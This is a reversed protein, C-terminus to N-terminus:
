EIILSDDEQLLFGDGGSLEYGETYLYYITLIEIYRVEILLSYYTPGVSNTVKFLANYSTSAFPPTGTFLGNQSLSVWSPLSVPEFVVPGNSAICQFNLADLYEINTINLTTRLSQTIVPPNLPTTDPIPAYVTLTDITKVSLDKIKFEIVVNKDNNDKGLLTLLYEKKLTNHSLTPFDISVINLSSLSQISIIDEQEVPFIKRLNQTNLDLQYLEPTLLYNQIGCVSQVVLKEQPFFWTEGAKAFTYTSLDTNAFEKDLNSSVPIALSLYRAEDAVSFIYDDNYDYNIKEFIVAGSTEILLTDFFIDIKRVGIGTLENILNTGTYTDFIGILDESAPSVFQSNKRVWIEGTINKRDYIPVGTLSKYLGYQNGFIDTGWNDIQLGNQKLVQSNAWSNVDLEGAFSTPKNQLDGWESDEYGTWPSQRSTPTILGVRLRPNTEFGSQYPLFKQYKRFISKKITGAIPGSLTPEKLWINNETLTYPSPQEQRTLGRGDVRKSVDEFYQGLAKSSVDLTTTYDQDIYVSTGINGPVFFGGIDATSYLEDFSPFMAVTPYFQNPLNAWPQIAEIALTATVNSYVTESIEPTATINWTFSDIANYYVEVPENDVFSQFLLNSTATTPTVVLDTKFNLLQDQLNSTSTTDVELTCWTNNDVTYTLDIPQSWTLNVPNNRYYEIHNGTELVIESIEPQSLINHEDVFRLPTGWSEVGKYDTYQNKQLYTKAWYPQAGGNQITAYPNLKGLNYDWGKLPTNLVYGPVPTNYATLSPVLATNPIATLAPINTFIFHGTNTYFFTGNSAFTATPPLSAASMATVAFTYLGSLTPNIIVSPVNRFFQLPQGPASVSWQIVSVLNNINLAPYQPYAPNAINLASTNTYTAIPYSLVFQKDPGISMYDFSTWISNRLESVDVNQLVTSLLNFKVSQARQYLLTNGPYLIMSSPTNASIWENDQNKYARIWVQNTSNYPYRLIYEPLAVDEKDQETVAARYYIYDRGNQLYFSNGASLAGSYWQGDGWGTTSNTKYWCFASSQTYATGSSDRWISLDFSAPSFNDEIIFDAFSNNDAYQTGTHGFPTFLVQKCTCLDSDIYTPDQTNAFKCDPQHKLTKFVTNVDTNDIGAWVFRTYEGPKALIQLEGQQTTILRSEPYSVERGSLWCCEIALDPTDKYNAIKYIVDASSLANGAVARSFNVASIPLPQCVQSINKSYYEPFDNDPNIREYPWVIVSNGSLQISIDTTNMRYLWAEEADGSYVSDSYAPPTKWLRLKDSSNYSRNPYAKNSVLTTDNILISDVSTLELSTSWYTTEVNEKLTDDLYFFRPDSALGFGTWNIDQASLGYGPFPFRFVTKSNADLTAQMTAPVYEYLNNRYWAGEVGRTTKIFVTDAIEISSGATSGTSLGSENILVSEYRPNTKAKTRYVGSPWFLFNNGINLTVDYFDQKSSFSPVQTLYKDQGLYKEALSNSLETLDGGSLSIYDASLPFVGLKYIWETSTLALGKTTLFNQLEVNNVNYYASVPITPSHDFYNKTDYLEEIQVTITDKVASLEPVDRWVTAPISISSNPKQTYNTLLFKQIQQVIGSNTGVQNYKLRSEKINDRLQLYYLAIDKLKKAFYPIALLLEKEDNINVKNYWNEAEEKTFFMQLQKLLTLYNLKVQLKTDVVQTSKDKYWNVLYENYQKFEEGPIIGQYASYWDRFSFPVDNDSTASSVFLPKAYKRLSQQNGISV